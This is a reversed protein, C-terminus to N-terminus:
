KKGSEQSLKEVGKLELLLFLVFFLLISQELFTAGTKLKSEKKAGGEKKGTDKEEIKGTSEEQQLVFEKAQRVTTPTESNDKKQVAKEIAKNLGQWKKQVEENEWIKATTSLIETLLKPNQLVEQITASSEQPLWKEGEQKNPDPKEPATKEKKHPLFDKESPWTHENKRLGFLHRMIKYEPDDPDAKWLKTNVIHFTHLLFDEGWVKKWHKKELGSKDKEQSNRRDIEGSQPNEQTAKNEEETKEQAKTEEMTEKSSKLGQNPNKEPESDVPMKEFGM